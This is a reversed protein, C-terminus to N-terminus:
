DKHNQTKLTLEPSSSNKNRKKSIKKELKIRWYYISQYSHKM